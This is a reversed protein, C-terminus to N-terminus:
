CKKTPYLMGRAAVEVLLKLDSKKHEIQVEVFLVMKPYNNMARSIETHVHFDYSYNGNHDLYLYAVGVHATGVGVHPAQKKLAEAQYYVETYDAVNQGKWYVIHKKKEQIVTSESVM